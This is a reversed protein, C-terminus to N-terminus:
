STIGEPLPQSAALASTMAIGLTAVALPKHTHTHTHTRKIVTFNPTDFSNTRCLMLPKRIMPSSM